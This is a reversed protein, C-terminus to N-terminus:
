EDVHGGRRNLREILAPLKIHNRASACGGGLTFHRAQMLAVTRIPQASWGGGGQCPPIDTPQRLSNVGSRGEFAPITAALQTQSHSHTVTMGACALMWHSLSLSSGAKAPTVRRSAASCSISM